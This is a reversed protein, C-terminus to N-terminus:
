LEEPLEPAVVAKPEGAVTRARDLWSKISPESGHPIRKAVQLEEFLGAGEGLLALLEKVEKRGERIYGRLEEANSAELLADDNLNAMPSHIDTSRRRPALVM